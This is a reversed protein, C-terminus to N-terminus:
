SKSDKDVEVDNMKPLELPNSNRKLPNYDPFANFFERIEGCYKCEGRSTPGNAVEIVWYHNCENESPKKTNSEKIRQKM